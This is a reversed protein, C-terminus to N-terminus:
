LLSQICKQYVLFYLHKLPGHCKPFVIYLTCDISSCQSAAPDPLLDCRIFMLLFFLPVCQCIFLCDSSILAHKPCANRQGTTCLRVRESIWCPSLRPKLFYILASRLSMARDNNVSDSKSVGSELIAHNDKVM